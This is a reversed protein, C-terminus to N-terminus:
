FLSPAKQRFTYKGLIGVMSSNQNINLTELKNVAGYYTFGILCGHNGKGLDFAVSWNYAYGGKSKYMELGQIDTQNSVFSYGMSMGIQILPIPYFLVGPGLIFSTLQINNSGNFIRHGIGSFEATAYLPISGFPGYGAKGGVSFVMDNSSELRDTMNEGDIKTWGLGAGFGIDFYLGQASVALSVFFFILDLILKKRM